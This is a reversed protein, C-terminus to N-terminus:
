SSLSRHLYCREISKCTSLSYAFYDKSSLLPCSICQTRTTIEGGTYFCIFCVISTFSIRVSPYLMEGANVAWTFDLHAYTPLDLITVVSDTPLEAILRQVDTPDALYDRGGTFLGIKFSSPINGLNYLPPADVGYHLQNASVSGYDHM